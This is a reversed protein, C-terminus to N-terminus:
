KMNRVANMAADHMMKRTPADAAFRKTNQTDPDNEARYAAARQLVDDVLADVDMGPEYNKRVYANWQGKFASSQPSTACLVVIKQLESMTSATTGPDNEKVDTWEPTHAPVREVRTPKTVDRSQTQAAAILPLMLLLATLIRM